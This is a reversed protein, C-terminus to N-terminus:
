INERTIDTTEIKEKKKDETTETKALRRKSIVANKWGIKKIWEGYM